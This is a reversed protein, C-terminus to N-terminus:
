RDGTFGAHSANRDFKVFCDPASGSRRRTSFSLQVSRKGSGYKRLPLVFADILVGVLASRQLSNSPAVNSADAGKETASPVSMLGHNCYEDSQRRRTSTAFGHNAVTVPADPSEMEFRRHAKSAFSEPRFRSDTTVRATTDWVVIRFAVGFTFVIPMFAPSDRRACVRSLFTSFISLSHRSSWLGFFLLRNCPITCAPSRTQHERALEAIRQRARHTSRIPRLIASRYRQFDRRGVRGGDPPVFLRDGSLVWGRANGAALVPETV